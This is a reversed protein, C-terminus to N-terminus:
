SYLRRIDREDERDDIEADGMAIAASLPSVLCANLNIVDAYMRVFGDVNESKRKDGM